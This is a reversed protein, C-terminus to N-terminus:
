GLPWVAVISVGSEIRSSLFLDGGSLEARELMSRLGLGAYEVDESGDLGKGNDHIMLALRDPTRSLSFRVRSAGSHKVINNFAEQVIRYIQTKLMADLDSEDFEFEGSVEIHPATVRFERLFWSLTAVIGLDDLLSPRLAMSVRRLEDLVEKSRGVIEYFQDRYRISKPGCEEMFQDVRLCIAGLRQGVGDHLERAICRRETDQAVLLRDSLEHTRKEEDILRLEYAKRVTVDVVNGVVFEKEGHTFQAQHICLWIRDGEKKQTAFEAGELASGATELFSSAVRSELQAEVGLVAELSRGLLEEGGYGLMTTLRSNCYNIRGKELLYIGILTNEALTYYKTESLKLALKDQKHASIERMLEMNTRRLQLTQQEVQSRLNENYSRILAQTKERETVDELVAVCIAEDQGGELTYQAGDCKKLRLKFQRDTQTSLPGFTLEQRDLSSWWQRWVSNRAEPTEFPNVFHKSDERWRHDIEGRTGVVNRDRLPVDWWHTCGIEVKGAIAGSVGLRAILEMFMTGTVDIVTGLGFEELTRNARLVRGDPNILCILQSLVDVSGQWEQKARLVRKHSELQLQKCRQQDRTMHVLRLVSCLFDGAEGVVEILDTCGLLLIDVWGGRVPAVVLTVQRIGDNLLIHRDEGDETVLFCSKESAGLTDAVRYESILVQLGRNLEKIDFGIGCPNFLALFATKWSDQEVRQLLFLAGPITDAIISLTKNLASQFDADDVLCETILTLAHLYSPVKKTTDPEARDGVEFQRLRQTDNM